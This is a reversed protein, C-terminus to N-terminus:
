GDCSASRLDTMHYWAGPLFLLGPVAPSLTGVLHAVVTYAVVANPDMGPNCLVVAVFCFAHYTGVAGPASPLMHAITSIGTKAVATVCAQGFGLSFAMLLPIPAICFLGWCIFALAQAGWFARRQAVVALGQGVSALVSELRTALAPWVKAAVGTIAGFIRQWWRYCVFLGVAGCAATLALTRTAIVLHARSLQVPVGLVETAQALVSADVPLLLMVVGVIALVPPLDQLRALAVSALVRPFPLRSSRSLLFSRVLEGGRMPLVFNGVHGLCTVRLTDRFTLGAPKGLLLQWQVVRLPIALYGIFVSVVLAAPSVDALHSMVERGDVIRVMWWLLAASVLIGLARRPWRRKGERPLGDATAQKCDVM